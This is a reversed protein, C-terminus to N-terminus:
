ISFVDDEEEDDDEVKTRKCVTVRDLNLDGAAAHDGQKIGVEAQIFSAGDEEFEDEDDDELDGRGVRRMGKGVTVTTQFFSMEDDDDDDEDDVVKAKGRAKRKKKKVTFDATTETQMLSVEDDTDDTTQTAQGNCQRGAKDIVAAESQMLSAHDEEDEWQPGYRRGTGVHREGTLMIVETQMASYEDEEEIGNEETLELEPAHTIAVEKQLASMEDTDEEESHLATVPARLLVLCFLAHTLMAM